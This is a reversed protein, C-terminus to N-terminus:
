ILCYAITQQNLNMQDHSGQMGGLCKVIYQMFLKWIPTFYKMKLPSSNVLETCSLNPKDKDFLGLTTLGARVTEKLPLPIVDKRIPLGIASIFEDQTFSLPIHCWSLSFTITKTEEEVKTTYWFEKLYEVYMASPQLTLAQNICCNLIFLLMPRYLVNSHELLAIANNFGIISEKYRIDIHNTRFHLVPNNSIAIASTNDCFIPVYEAEASSMAVSSQKKASWCVLKGGLIQCGRSTSKRDLNCRAYDSDSYAKLDFSSGKPYWLGLNLTGKLYRFIRKVAVLHSEKLNAQYEDKDESLLLEELLQLGAAYVKQVLLMIYVHAATVRLIMKFDKLGLLGGKFKNNMM